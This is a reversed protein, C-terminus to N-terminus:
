RDPPVAPCIVQYLAHEQWRGAIRLYDPALGYLVFGNKTLVRRSAVNHVLTEGQLRHLGLEAFAIRKGESVAWSAVGQGRAHEAVWYGVSASQFAGRIISNLNLSGLIEGTDRDVILLPHSTGSALLAAVAERQGAETYHEDSRLPGSGALAQRNDQLV